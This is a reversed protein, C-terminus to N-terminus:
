IREDSLNVITFIEFIAFVISKKDITIPMQM